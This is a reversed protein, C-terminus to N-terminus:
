NTYGLEVHDVGITEPDCDQLLMRVLCSHLSYARDSFICGGAERRQTIGPWSRRLVQKVNALSRRSSDLIVMYVKPAYPLRESNHVGWVRGAHLYADHDLLTPGPASTPKACYKAAYYMAGRQSRIIEIRVFPQKDDVYMRIIESWAKRFVRFPFFPLDFCLLHFHPAGRDQFEMRWIASMEPFRRRLRELLARLHMKAEKPGPFRKPYTLTLFTTRGPRLRAIKRLLRTRSERSFGNVEGRRGGGSKSADSENAVALLSGQAEVHIARRGTGAPAYNHYVAM